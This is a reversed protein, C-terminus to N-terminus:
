IHLIKRWVFMTLISFDVVYTLFISLGQGFSIIISFLTDRWAVQIVLSRVIRQSITCVLYGLVSLCYYKTWVFSVFIRVKEYSLSLVLLTLKFSTSFLSCDACCTTYVTLTYIKATKTQKHLKFEFTQRRHSQKVLTWWRNKLIEELFNFEPCLNIVCM